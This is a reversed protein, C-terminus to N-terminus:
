PEYAPKDERTPAPGPPDAPAPAPSASQEPDM